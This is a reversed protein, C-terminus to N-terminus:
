FSYKAATIQKGFSEMSYRIADLSHNSHDIPENLFEGNKDQKWKYNRFEKITNISSKTINIRYRQLANLGQRISDSGKTAAKIKIGMRHLEEISKPEAADAIIMRNQLEEAKIYGAIDLNTLGKEYIIENVWLEGDQLRVEVLTTPDNTFGFDMGLSRKDTQPLYDCLRWNTFILGEARGFQVDVHVKKFNPDITARYELEKKLVPNLEENNYFNSKILSYESQPLTFVKDSIWFDTVPNFDYFIRDDTRQELEKVISYSINNCENLYLINRHPGTAKSEDASFFEILSNGFHYTQYSINLPNYKGISKLINEFERIAGIKLHPLSESVVSISVGKESRKEAITYLLQLTAVTKGASTGGMNIIRRYGDNFAKITHAFVTTTKM